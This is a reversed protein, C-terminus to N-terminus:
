KRVISIVLDKLPQEGVSVALAESKYRRHFVVAKLTWEGLPVDPIMFSGPEELVAFYSSPLVVLRGEMLKHVSCFYNLRGVKNVSLELTSGREHLGLDFPELKNLSYVNHDIDRDEDNLWQVKDGQGIVLLVPNFKRGKQSVRHKRPSRSVQGPDDPELYVILSRLPKNGEVEVSGMLDQTKCEAQDVAVCLVAGALFPVLYLTSNRNM